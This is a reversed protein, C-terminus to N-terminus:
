RRRRADALRALLGAGGLLVLPLACGGPMGGGRRVRTRWPGRVPAEDAYREDQQWDPVGDDDRDM